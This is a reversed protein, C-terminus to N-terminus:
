PQRTGTQSTADVSRTARVFARIKTPDKVGNTEVGSSVDVGWPRVRRVAEGVDEPDLGGSLFFPFREAIAAALDWNLHQGTGGYRGEVRSEILCHGGESQIGPLRKQLEEAIDQPQRDPSVRLAKIAPRELAQCLEWPEDGSLQLLDLGCVNALDAMREPSEDVFVGVLLPRTSPDLRQRLADSVARAQEPTVMRSSMPAFIVGIYDAGVEAAVLAHQPERVGCIKVKTM